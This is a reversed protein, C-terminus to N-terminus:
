ARRWRPNARPELGTGLFALGITAVSIALGAPLVWWLWESTFYVGEHALARNLVGGWSVGTPDDLGLFALGAQLAVAIGAWNVFSAGAIPLLVPVIHRRIAYFWGAGFGRAADVYGRRVLLLAQGHAVRAIGPWGALGILLILTARSPGALAAVLILLPLHPIALFVDIIRMILFEVWGGILAALSGVAVGIGVALAAASVAVIGSVRTGWILQSFIDQGLDNTGLLHTESPSALSPGALAHPDYPAIVPALLAVLTLGAM